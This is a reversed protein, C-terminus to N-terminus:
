DQQTSPVHSPPAPPTIQWGAELLRFVTAVIDGTDIDDNAEALRDVAALLANAYEVTLKLGM